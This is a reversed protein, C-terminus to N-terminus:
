ETENIEILAKVALITNIVPIFILIAIVLMKLVEVADPTKKIELLEKFFLIVCTIFSMAYVAYLINLLM